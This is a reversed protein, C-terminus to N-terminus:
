YSIFSYCNLKKDKHAQAERKSRVTIVGDTRKKRVNNSGFNRVDNEIYFTKTNNRRDDIMKKFFGNKNISSQAKAIEYDLIYQTWDKKLFKIVYDETMWKYFFYNGNPKIIVVGYKSNKFLISKLTTSIKEYKFNKPQISYNLKTRYTYFVKTKKSKVRKLCRKQNRDYQNVKKTFTEKTFKQGRDMMRLAEVSKNIEEFGLLSDKYTIIINKEETNDFDFDRKFLMNVQNLEIENLKGFKYYPHLKYILLSDNEELSDQYIFGPSRKKFENASIEKLNEDFYIKTKEIEQSFCFFPIFLLLLSFKM